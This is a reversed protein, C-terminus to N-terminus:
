TQSRESTGDFAAIIRMKSQEMAPVTPSAGNRAKSAVELKMDRRSSKMRM